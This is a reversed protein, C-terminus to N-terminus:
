EESAKILKRLSFIFDETTPVQIYDMGIKSFVGNKDLSDDILVCNNYQLNKNKLYNDFFMNIDGDMDEKMAGIQSSSLVDDFIDGYKKQLAPYTWRLFSDMNDTAVVVSSGTKKILNIFAPIEFDCFEMLECSKVFERYILEYSFNLFDAIKRCVDESKYEGRMWPKLLERFQGFLTNEIEDFLIKDEKKNSSQLHGWFKSKSLTGNWDLFVIKYNNM